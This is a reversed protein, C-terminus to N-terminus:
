KVEDIEACIITINDKGGNKIAREILKKGKEEITTGEKLIKEIEKDRVMGTLGDSCLLVIDDKMLNVTYTDVRVAHDIGVARTIVNKQPHVEAEEQTIEGMDMLEQVLSNDRTVMHLQGEGNNSKLYYCRSDGVNAVYMKDRYLVALVVTTGMMKYEEQYSMEAIVDNAYNVAKKIEDLIRNEYSENQKTASLYNIFYGKNEQFYKGLHEIALGSAVEGKKHGGMGDAVILISADESLKIVRSSDENNARILGVHSDMYINM